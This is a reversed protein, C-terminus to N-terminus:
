GCPVEDDDQTKGTDPTCHEVSGVSDGLLGGPTPSLPHPHNQVVLAGPDNFTAYAAGSTVIAGPM